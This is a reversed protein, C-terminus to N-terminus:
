AVKPNRACEVSTIERRDYRKIKIIIYIFNM